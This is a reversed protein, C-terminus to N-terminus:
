LFFPSFPFTNGTKRLRTKYWSISKIFKLDKCNEKLYSVIPTYYFSEEMKLGCQCHQNKLKKDFKHLIHCKPCLYYCCRGELDLYHSLIWNFGLFKMKFFFSIVLLVAEIQTYTFFFELFILLIFLILEAETFITGVIINSFRRFFNAITKENTHDIVTFDIMKDGFEPTNYNFSNNFNEFYEEYNSFHTEINNEENSKEQNHSFDTEIEEESDFIAPFGSFCDDDEDIKQRKEPNETLKNVSSSFVPVENKKQIVSEIGKYFRKLM